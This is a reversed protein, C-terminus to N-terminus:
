YFTNPYPSYPGRYYNTFAYMSPYYQNTVRPFNYYQVGESKRNPSHTAYSFPYNYSYPYSSPYINVTDDSFMSISCRRCADNCSRSNFRYCARCINCSQQDLYPNM